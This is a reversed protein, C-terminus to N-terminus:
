KSFIFKRKSEFGSKQGDKYLDWIVIAGNTAATAIINKCDLKISFTSKSLFSFFSFSFLFLFSFSFYM